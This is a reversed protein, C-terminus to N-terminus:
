LIDANLLSFERMIFVIIPLMPQHLVTELLQRFGLRRLFKSAKMM